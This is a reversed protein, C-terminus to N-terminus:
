KAEQEQKDIMGQQLIVQDRKPIGLKRMLRQVFEPHFENKYELEVTTSNVTTGTQGASGTEGASLARSASVALYVINDNADVYYDYVPTAPYKLYIITTATINNPKIRLNDGDITCAPNKKLPASLINTLLNNMSEHTVLPIDRFQGNYSSSSRLAMFYAFSTIASLNITGATPTAPAEMIFPRLIKSAYVLDPVLLGARQKDYCEEVKDKFFSLNEDKILYNFEKLNFEGGLSETNMYSNLLTYIEHLTM